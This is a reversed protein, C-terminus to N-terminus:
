KPRLIIPKLPAGGFHRAGALLTGGFGSWDASRRNADAMRADGDRALNPLGVGPQSAAGAPDTHRGGASEASAAGAGDALIAVGTRGTALGSAARPTSGSRLRTSSGSQTRPRAWPWPPSSARM